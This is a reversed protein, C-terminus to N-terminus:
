RSDNIVIRIKPTTVPAFTLKRWVNNNGSINGGPVTVWNVGDLYQVDFATLGYLTFTMTETPTVPSLYSDQVSFVDIENITQAGNFTM